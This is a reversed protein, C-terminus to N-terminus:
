GALVLSVLVQMLSGQLQGRQPTGVVMRTGSVQQGVRQSQQKALPLRPCGSSAERERPSGPAVASTVADGPWRAVVKLGGTAATEETAAIGETVTLEAVATEERAIGGIAAQEATAIWAAPVPEYFAVLSGFQRLRRRQRNRVLKQGRQPHRLRPLQGLGAVM